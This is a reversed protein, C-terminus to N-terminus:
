AFQDIEQEVLQVDAVLEVIQDVADWRGCLDAIRLEDSESQDESVAPEGLVESSRDLLGPQRRCGRWERGLANRRRFDDVGGIM